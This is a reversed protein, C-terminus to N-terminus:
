PGAEDNIDVQAHVKELPYYLKQRTWREEDM